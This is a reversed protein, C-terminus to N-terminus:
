GSMRRGRGALGSAYGACTLVFGAVLAGVRSPNRRHRWVGSPLVRTTYRRESALAEGSGALESLIAKSRGEQYCRRAFYGFRARDDTVVHTVGFGTDRLIESSPDRRRLDIGMLTEECGAPMTGRRGLRTSFGGIDNLADRRVAMAAGIPNRIASGDGPLGRYDCGIVWGFEEPFWRPAPSDWQAVVAGGVAVIGTDACRARVAALAGPAPCADDDIFVVVDGTAAATGTNRADSLGRSGDNARVIADPHATALDAMLTENHDVVVVLEDDPCLQARIEAIATDLLRRRRETYCCVIVSLTPETPVRTDPVTIDTVPAGAVPIDTVPAESVPTVPDALPEVPHSSLM